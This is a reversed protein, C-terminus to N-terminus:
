NPNQYFYSRYMNQVLFTKTINLKKLFNGQRSNFDPITSNIFFIKAIIGSSIGTYKSFTFLLSIYEYSNM